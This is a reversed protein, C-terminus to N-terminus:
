VVSTIIFSTGVASYAFASLTDAQGGAEYTLQVGQPLVGGLWTGSASGENFVSVSRAGALVTGAGSTVLYSPTRQIPAPFVGGGAALVNYIDTLGKLAQYEFRWNSGKDGSHPNGNGLPM